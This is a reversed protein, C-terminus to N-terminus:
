PVTPRIREPWLDHHERIGVLLLRTHVTFIKVLIQFPYPLVKRTHIHRLNGDDVLVVYVPVTQLPKHLVGPRLHQRIPDVRLISIHVGFLDLRANPLRFYEDPRRNPSQLNDHRQDSLEVHAIHQRRHRHTQGPADLQHVDDRADLGDVHNRYTEIEPKRRPM